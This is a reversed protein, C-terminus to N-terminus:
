EAVFQNVLIGASWDVGRRAIHYKSTQSMRKIRIEILKTERSNVMFLSSEGAEFKTKEGELLLQYNKETQGLLELQGYLQQELNFYYRVKNRLSQLKASQTYGFEQIKLDMMRLDGREKRIFLPMSFKLGWNYNDSFNGENERALQPDLFNYYLDVKPKLKEQKWRRDIQMSQAYFSLMQLDPHTTALQDIIMSISDTPLPAEHFLKDLIPPSLNASPELPILGEYWLHNSLQISANNYEILAQNRSISRNQFQIYAELTDIAPRDGLLYSQVVAQHRVRTLEVAENLVQLENYKQVWSWYDSLADFLMNNLMKARESQSSELYIKAQKLTARREDIFLGQGLTISAGAYWQEENALYNQPNLYEGDSRGYGGRLEIGYWTPIRLGAQQLDYYNKEGYFKTGSMVDVVPDFGGKAALESQQAMVPRLQAQLAMPHYKVVWEVFDEESFVKLSDQSRVNLVLTLLIIISLTYRM